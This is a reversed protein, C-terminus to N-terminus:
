IFRRSLVCGELHPECCRKFWWMRALGSRGPEETWPIRWALISSHTAHGGGTSRGLGPISSLDGANCASEKGDSSGHFGLVFKKSIFCRFYQWNQPSEKFSFFLFLPSSPYPHLIIFVFNPVFILKLKLSFKWLIFNKISFTIMFMKLVLFFIINTNCQQRTGM